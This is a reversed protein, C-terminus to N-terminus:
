SNPVWCKLESTLSYFYINIVNLYLNIAELQTQYIRGYYGKQAIKLIIQLHEM